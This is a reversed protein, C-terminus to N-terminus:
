MRENIPYYTIVTNSLHPITSLDKNTLCCPNNLLVLIKKFHQKTSSSNVANLFNLLTIKPEEVLSHKMAQGFVTPQAFKEFCFIEIVIVKRKENIFIM